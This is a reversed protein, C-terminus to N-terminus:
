PEERQNDDQDQEMRTSMMETEMAKVKEQDGIPFTNM